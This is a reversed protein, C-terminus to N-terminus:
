RRRFVENPQASRRFLRSAALQRSPSGAHPRLQQQERTAVALIGATLLSPTTTAKCVLLCGTASCQHVLRPHVTEEPWVKERIM